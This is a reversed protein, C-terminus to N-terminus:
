QNVIAAGLVPGADPMQVIAVLRDGALGANTAAYSKRGGTWSGLMREGLVVNTYSLRRGGNEGRKVVVDRRSVVDVLRVEARGAAAGNVTISLRGDPLSAISVSASDKMHRLEDALRGRNSGVWQRQGDAVLQPTYVSRAGFRAQYQHQLLTNEPRALTDKWGLRDWYTVPRSLVVVGPRDAVDAVAKDAPPCSSCGQSTFLELLTTGATAAVAPAPALFASATAAVLLLCLSLITRM